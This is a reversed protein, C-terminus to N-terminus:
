CAVGPMISECAVKHAAVFENSATSPYIGLRSAPHRILSSANRVRVSDLRVEQQSRIKFARDAPNPIPPDIKSENEVVTVILMEDGDRLVTGIGWEVAYRSEESLDSAVIYRRIRRDAHKEEPNGQRIAITCRDREFIPRSTQSPLPEHRTSKRRRPNRKGRTSNGTGGSPYNLTSPFYPEPPVVVNVGEGHPDPDVDADIELGIFGGDVSTLLANRETNRETVPDLADDESWPEDETEADAEGV